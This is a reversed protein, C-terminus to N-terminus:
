AAATTEIPEACSDEQAEDLEKAYYYESLKARKWLSPDFKPEREVSEPLATWAAWFVGGMPEFSHSCWHHHCTTHLPMGPVPPVERRVEQLRKELAKGARSRLAPVWHGEQNRWLPGPCEEGNLGVIYRLDGWSRRELLKYGPFEAEIGECHVRYAECIAKFARQWEAVEPADSVYVAKIESM